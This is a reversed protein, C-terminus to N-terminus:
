ALRRNSTGFVVTAVAAVSCAAIFLFLLRPEGRDLFQGFIMPAIIGGMHIGTSVFGFVKGFSGRPTVSRVIMDRSPLMIGTSFGGVAVAGLLLLASPDWVGIFASILGTMLLGCAAVAGHHLTRSAVVGGVLVGIASMTLLCTLATNALKLPTDHLAALGVVLYQNLGGNVLSLMFFFLLNLVIPLSLLLKWGEASNDASATDRPKLPQARREAVPDRQILLILAAVVGFLSAGLFAGRWGMFGQMTLLTVPAIASGVMGACTHYSFVKTIREPAVHESLLAYDAPHFVANALGLVGFMAVFVWFSDVLGAVAVASAGLLLGGILNRRPDTRDVLFGTPTQMVASVMHFVTLALGLETYSVGYDARIFVFLPALLVMYYHSVLHALCVGAVLRTEGARTLPLVETAETM